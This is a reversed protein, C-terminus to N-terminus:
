FCQDNGTTILVFLCQRTTLLRGEDTTRDQYQPQQYNNHDVVTGTLTAAMYGVIRGENVSLEQLTISIYINIPFAVDLSVKGSTASKLLQELVVCSSIIM